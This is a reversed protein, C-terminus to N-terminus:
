GRVQRKLKREECGLRDREERVQALEIVKAFRSPAAIWGLPNAILNLLRGDSTAHTLAQFRLVNIVHDERAQSIAANLSNESVTQGLFESMSRVIAGRDRGSQDVATRMGAVLQAYLSNARTVSADFVPVVDRVPPEWAFLDGTKGCHYKRRSM